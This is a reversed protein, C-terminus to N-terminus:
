VLRKANVFLLSRMVAFLLAYGLFGVIILQGMSQAFLTGIKISPDLIWAFPTFIFLAVVLGLSSGMVFRRTFFHQFKKMIYTQSAGLFRLTQTTEQHMKFCSEVLVIVVICLTIFMMVALSRSFDAVGQLKSVWSGFFESRTYVKIGPVIGELDERFQTDNLHAQRALRVEVYPTKATEAMFLPLISSYDTMVFERHGIVDDLYSLMHDLFGMADHHPQAKDITVEPLMLVYGPTQEAESLLSDPSFLHYFSYSLFILFMFLACVASLMTSTSGQKFPIEKLNHSM